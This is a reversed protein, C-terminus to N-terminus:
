SCLVIVGETHGFEAFHCHWAHGLFAPLSFNRCVYTYMATLASYPPVVDKKSLPLLIKTEQMLVARVHSFANLPHFCVDALVLRSVAECAFFCAL